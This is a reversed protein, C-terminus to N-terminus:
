ATLTFHDRVLEARCTLSDAGKNELTTALIMVMTVVDRM